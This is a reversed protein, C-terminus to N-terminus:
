SISSLNYYGRSSINKKMACLKYNGLQLAEFQEKLKEHEHEISTKTEGAANLEHKLTEILEGDAKNKIHLNECESLLFTKHLCITFM